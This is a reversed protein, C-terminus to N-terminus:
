GVARLRRGPMPKVEAVEPEAKPLRWRLDRKGKPTLGLSDMRLRVESAGSANMTNHLCITDFAFGIDAPSWQATVPDNRWAEWTAVTAPRWEGEPLEFLVPQELPELDVWEGRMPVNRRRRNEQPARGRGAM